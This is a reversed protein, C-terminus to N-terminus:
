LIRGERILLDILKPSKKLGSEELINKLYELKEKTEGRRGLIEESKIKSGIVDLQPMIYSAIAEDLLPAINSDNYEYLAVGVLIFKFADVIHAYGYEVVQNVSLYGPIAVLFDLYSYLKDPFDEKLAKIKNLTEANIVVYDNLSTDNFEILQRFAENLCEERIVQNSYQSIFVQDFRIENYSIQPAFPNDVYIVSFRRLLAFGLKILIARDYSNMTAIIRFSYPIFIEKKRNNSSIYKIVESSINDVSNQIKDISLLGFDKRHEIDMLTFAKGFALDLNARNIEDIILWYPKGRDKISRWCNLVTKTLDGLKYKLAGQSPIEGGILDFTTMEAHATILDYSVNFERCIDKALRTKGTGPPGVLIINKGSILHLKILDKLNRDKSKAEAIEQNTVNIWKKIDMLRKLKSIGDESLYILSSQPVPIKVEKFSILEEQNWKSPDDPNEKISKPIRLIKILFRYPWNDNYKSNKPWYPRNDPFSDEIVGYVLYAKVPNKAYIFVEKGKYSGSNYFNRYGSHLGWLLRGLPKEKIIETKRLLADKISHIVNDVSGIFGVFETSM